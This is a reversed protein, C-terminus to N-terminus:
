RPRPPDQPLPATLAFRDLRPNTFHLYLASQEQTEIVLRWAAAQGPPPLPPEGPGSWLTFHGGDGTTEEGLPALAVAQIRGGTVSCAIGAARRLTDQNPQTQGINRLEIDVVWLNHALREVDRVQGGMRDRSTELNQLAPWIGQQGAMHVPVGWVDAAYRQLSGPARRATPAVNPLWRVVGMLPTQTLSWRALAKCEVQSLPASGPHSGDECWPTWGSPFNRELDERRQGDIWGDPDPLVAVCVEFPLAQSPTSLWDYLNQLFAVPDHDPGLPPVVLACPARGAERQSEGPTPPPAIRLMVLARGAQSQGYTELSVREPFERVWGQLIAQMGIPSPTDRLRELAAQVEQGNPAEGAASAPLATQGAWGDTLSAALILPVVWWSVVRNM